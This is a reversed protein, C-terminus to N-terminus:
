VIESLVIHYHHNIDINTSAISNCIVYRPIFYNPLTKMEKKYARADKRLWIFSRFVILAGILAFVYRMLLALIEYAEGSM